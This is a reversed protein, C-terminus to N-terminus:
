RQEPRAAAVVQRAVAVAPQAVAAVVVVARRTDRRRLCCAARVARTTRALFVSVRFVSRAGAHDHGHREARRRLHIRDRSRGRHRRRHQRRRERGARVVLVPVRDQRGGHIRSHLVTGDQVEERARAGRGQDGAHLRDSRIRRAGAALVARAQESDAADAVVERGARREQRVPTEVIPWIPEGTVRDLVYVFGQKTTQALIKRPQGNITVDLLNPAMPTDYDWIDHHVFQYHWKRQGTKVDLAVVSTGFLNNGPRHGGYEDVLGMGTPIYVLGLDPDASYPAWADVKGVGTTGIKSGNEWTEAGFEGPQPITNFKWLQKGTRIDFGRIAGGLNHMYIPYYGHIASNGVILIDGVVIPPSSAGLQGLAPDIGVTGDAGIKKVADWTEGPKAKRAPYGESICSRGTM